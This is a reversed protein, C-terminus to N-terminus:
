VDLWLRFTPLCDISLDGLRRKAAGSATLEECASPLFLALHQKHHVAFGTSEDRRM